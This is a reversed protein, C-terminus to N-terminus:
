ASKCERKTLVLDGLPPPCHYDYFCLPREPPPTMTNLPFFGVIIVDSRVIVRITTGDSFHVTCGYAGSAGPRECDIKEVTAHIPPRVETTVYHEAVRKSLSEPDRVWHECESVAAPDRESGDQATELRASGASLAPFAQLKARVLIGPPEQTLRVAGGNSGRAPRVRKQQPTSSQRQTLIVHM